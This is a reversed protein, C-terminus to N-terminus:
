ALTLPQCTGCRTIASRTHTLAWADLEPLSPSCAKVYPGTWTNGRPPTGTITRCDAHHARADSPNMARQINLVYGRANAALWVAYGQDDDHSLEVSV